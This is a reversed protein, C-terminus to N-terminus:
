GPFNSMPGLLKLAKLFPGKLQKLMTLEVNERHNYLDM